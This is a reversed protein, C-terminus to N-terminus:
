DNQITKLNDMVGEIVSRFGGSVEDPLSEYQPLAMREIVGSIDGAFNPQDVGIKIILANVIVQLAHVEGQQRLIMDKLLISYDTLQDSDM